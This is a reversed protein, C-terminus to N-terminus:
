TSRFDTSRYEAQHSADARSDPSSEVQASRPGTRHKDPHLRCQASQLYMRGRAMTLGAPPPGSLTVRNISRNWANLQRPFEDNSVISSEAAGSSMGRARQKEGGQIVRTQQAERAVARCIRTRADADEARFRGEWGVRAVRSLGCERWAPKGSDYSFVHPRVCVVKRLRFVNLNRTPLHASVLVLLAQRGSPEHM